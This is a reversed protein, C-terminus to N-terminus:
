WDDGQNSAQRAVGMPLLRSFRTGDSREYTRLVMLIPRRAPKKGVRIRMAPRAISAAARQVNAPESAPTLRALVVPASPREKEETEPLPSAQQAIAPAAAPAEVVKAPAMVTVTQYAPGAQVTPTHARKKAPLQPQAQWVGPPSVLWHLGTLYGGLMVVIVLMYGFLAPM